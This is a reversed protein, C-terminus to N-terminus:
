RLSIPKRPGVLQTHKETLAFHARRSQARELFLAVSPITTLEALRPLPLSLDPVRLPAVRPTQEWRIHLSARSTVLLVVSPREALLEALSAAAPLAQEFNDLILWTARDQLYAFLRKLL